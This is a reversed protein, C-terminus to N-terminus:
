MAPQSLKAVCACASYAAAGDRTRGGSLQPLGSLVFVLRALLQQGGGGQLARARARM